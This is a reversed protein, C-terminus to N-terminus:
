GGGTTIEWKRAKIIGASGFCSFLNYRYYKQPDNVKLKREEDCSCLSILSVKFPEWVPNLNNKIVQKLLFVLCEAFYNDASLGCSFMLTSLKVETRHVLQETEDDNIRYIELFPDSKSFLDQLLLSLLNSFHGARQSQLASFAIQCHHQQYQGLENGFEDRPKSLSLM